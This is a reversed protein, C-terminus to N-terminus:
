LVAGNYFSIINLTIIKRTILQNPSLLCKFIGDKLNLAKSMALNKCQHKDDGDAIKCDIQSPAVAKQTNLWFKRPTITGQKLVCCPPPLDRVGRGRAGSDSAQKEACLCFCTKNKLSSWSKLATEQFFFACQAM